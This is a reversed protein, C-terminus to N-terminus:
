TLDKKCTISIKENKTNRALISIGVRMKVFLSFQCNEKPVGQCKGAKGKYNFIAFVREM